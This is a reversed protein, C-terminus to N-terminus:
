MVNWSMCKCNYKLIAHTFVTKHGAKTLLTTSTEADDDNDDYGYDGVYDDVDGDSCVADDITATM